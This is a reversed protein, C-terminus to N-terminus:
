AVAVRFLIQAFVNALVGAAVDDALVGWASPLKEMQRLPPPKWVDFLRFFAFALAFSIWGTPLFVLAVGMGLVEDCVIEQPDGSRGEAEMFARAAWFGLPAFAAVCAAFTWPSVGRALVGWLALAALSAATGPAKPTFGVGFFTALLFALRRM